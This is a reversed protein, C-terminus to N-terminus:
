PGFESNWLGSARVKERSAFRGLWTASPGCVTCAAVTAILRSELRNREERNEIRVCRVRFRDVLLTSVRQEFPACRPCAVKMHREWHGQGPGPALCASAPDELRILAGGLLLRFVSGNKSGAYHERLRAVLRGDSRPHNGIRVIRGEASHTSAEDQEYFFYLGDRFPVDQPAAYRPLCDMLRHISACATTADFADGAGLVFFEPTAVGRVEASETVTPPAAEHAAPRERLEHGATASVLLRGHSDVTFTFTADPYRSCLGEEVIQKGLAMLHAVPADVIQQGCVTARGYWSEREGLRQLSSVDLTSTQGDARAAADIVLAIEPLRERWFTDYKSAM